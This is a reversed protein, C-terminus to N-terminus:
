KRYVARDIRVTYRLDKLAKVIREKEKFLPHIANKPPKVWKEFQQLQLIADIKQNYVSRKMVCIGVGKDFPAAMLDHEKMYRATMAISRSPKVEQM